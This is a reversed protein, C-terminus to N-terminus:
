SPRSQMRRRYEQPTVGTLEKFARCFYIPETMGCRSGIKKATDNTEALLYKAHEIRQRRIEMVPTRRLSNKFHAVLTPHSVGVLKLIEGIKFRREVNAAIFKLAQVVIENHVEQVDTSARAIAGIPSVTRLFRGPPGNKEWDLAIQACERGIGEFSEAISSLQPQSLHCPLVANGAGLVAIEEPVKIGCGVCLEVLGAGLTDDVTHIGCPRPLATLWALLKRPLAKPDFFAADDRVLPIDMQHFGFRSECLRDRFGAARPDLHNMEPSVHRRSRNSPLYDVRAFHHFQRELFHEAAMRGLLYHDSSVVPLPLNPYYDVCAIIVPLGTRILMQMIAPPFVFHLALADPRFRQLIRRFNQISTDPRILRVHWGIGQHLCSALGLAVQANVPNSPEALFILQKM